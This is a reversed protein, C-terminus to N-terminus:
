YGCEPLPRYGVLILISALSSTAVVLYEGLVEFNLSWNLGVGIDTRTKELLHEDVSGVDRRDKLVAKFSLLGVQASFKELKDFIWWTSLVKPRGGM